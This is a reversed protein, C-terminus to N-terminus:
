WKELYNIIRELFVDAERKFMAVKTHDDCKRLLSFAISGYFQQEKKLKLSCRLSQMINFLEIALTKESELKTITNHMSNGINLLLGVIFSVVIKEPRINQRM